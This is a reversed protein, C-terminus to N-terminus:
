EEKNLIDLCIFVIVAAMLFITKEISGSPSAIGIAGWLLAIVNYGLIKFKKIFKDFKSIM